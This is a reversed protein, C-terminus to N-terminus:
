RTSGWAMSAVGTRHRPSSSEEGSSSALVAADEGHVRRVPQNGCQASVPDDFQFNDVSAWKTRHNYAFRRVDDDTERRANVTSDDPCPDGRARPRRPTPDCVYRGTREDKALYVFDRADVCKGAHLGLSLLAKLTAPAAVGDDM